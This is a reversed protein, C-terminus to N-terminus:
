LLAMLKIGEMESAVSNRRPIDGKPYEKSMPWAVLSRLRRVERRDGVLYVYRYKPEIPVWSIGNDKAWKRPNTIGRAALTRPHVRKGEVLYESDHPRSEGAFMFNTAQYVYGVHRQGRDAYSVVVHAGEMARLAGGVLMSAANPIATCLALRNLEIVSRPDTPVCSRAVQPSSPKGFTVAGVLAGGVFLGFAYMINSARGSYHHAVILDRAEAASISRVCPNSGRDVAQNATTSAGQVVNANCM